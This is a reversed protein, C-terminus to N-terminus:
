LSSHDAWQLDEIMVALPSENAAARLLGTVLDFFRARRAGDDLSGVVDSQPISLGLLGNLLSALDLLDPNLHEIAALVAESRDDATDALGTGFLSGLVHVWPAFPNAATYFHCQGHHVTWSRSLLYEQLELALRSKGMGAEGSIVVARGKGDETEQCLRRLLAMEAERGLLAPAQTAVGASASTREGELLCIPVPAKKGKVSIPPLERVNFSPGAECAVQQSVLVQGPSASGMLRAALNVADGMVTYDRRVPSGVDGVFVFGAHIGIRHRLPMNLRSLQQDLALAMRFANASDHEHSVPAGFVLILKLGNTDVDNGVLFGGYQESLDVVLATYRQLEDRLALPGREALLENVGLLNIFAITVKRHEGEVSTAEDGGTAAQVVPPPLYALLDPICSPPLSTETRPSWTMSVRGLLRRVRFDDGRPEVLNREGALALTAATVVVEGAAAVAETQAVRSADKGLIFHQMRRGPVGVSASWFVGSHAGVSMSVRIRDRGVQVSPFRRTARQMALAAAVAHRAHGEGTFLLLLADGGFKVNSGGHTRAVDLLPHFYSNIIGTLREAGEKGTEALLESMRTFGSIDTLVLTGQIPDVWPSLRNPERALGEVLIAPLYPSLAL